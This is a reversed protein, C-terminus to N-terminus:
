KTDGTSLKVSSVASQIVRISVQGRLDYTYESKSDSCTFSTGTIATVKLSGFVDGVELTLTRDGEMVIATYSNKTQEYIIASVRIAPSSPRSAVPKAKGAPKVSKTDVKKGPVAISAVKIPEAVPAAIMRQRGTFPDKDGSFGFQARTALEKELHNVLNIFAVDYGASASQSKKVEASFSRDIASIRYVMVAALILAALSILFSKKM